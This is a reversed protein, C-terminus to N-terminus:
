NIWFKIQEFFTGQTILGKGYKPHNIIKITYIITNKTKFIKKIKGEDLKIIKIGKNKCSILIHDKDWECISTLPSNDIKIKNLLSKSHFDWIRINGDNCSEILKVVNTYSNIIVGNHFSNNDEYYRHYIINKNYNYSKIFNINCTIIYNISNIKDFYVKLFLTNINSNIIEKVINGKIDYIKIPEPEDYIDFNSTVIYINNKEELFCASLLNGSRNINKM